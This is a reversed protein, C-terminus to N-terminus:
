KQQESSDKKEKKAQLYNYVAVKLFSTMENTPVRAEGAEKADSLSKLYNPVEDKVINQWDNRAYNPHSSLFEQMQKQSIEVSNIAEGEKFYNEWGQFAMRVPIPLQKDSLTALDTVQSTPLSDVLQIYEEPAAPWYRPHWEEAYSLFDRFDKLPIPRETFEKSVLRNWTHYRFLVEPPAVAFQDAYAVDITVKDLYKFAPLYNSKEKANIRMYEPNQWLFLSLDRNTVQLFPSQKFLLNIKDNYWNGVGWCLAIVTTLLFLWLWAPFPNKTYGNNNVFDKESLEPRNDRPLTM